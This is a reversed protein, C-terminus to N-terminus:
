RILYFRQSMDLPVLFPSNAGEIAGYPGEIKQLSLLTGQFNIVLEAAQRKIALSRLSVSPQSEPNAQGIVWVRDFVEIRAADPNSGSQGNVPIWSGDQLVFAKLDPRDLEINGEMDLPPIPFLSTTSSGKYLLVVTGEHPSEDFISDYALNGIPARELSILLLTDSANSLEFPGTELDTRPLSFSAFTDIYIWDGSELRLDPAWLNLFTAAEAEGRDPSARVVIVGIPVDTGSFLESALM